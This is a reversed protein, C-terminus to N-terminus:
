PTIFTPIIEGYYGTWLTQTNKSHSIVPVCHWVDFVWVIASTRNIFKSIKNMYEISKDEDPTYSNFFTLLREVNVRFWNCKGLITENTNERQWEVHASVVYIVNQKFLLVSVILFLFLQQYVLRFHVCLVLECVSSCINSHFTFLLTQTRVASFNFTRVYTM